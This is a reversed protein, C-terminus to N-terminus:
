NRKGGCDLLWLGRQTIEWNDDKVLRIFRGVWLQGIAKHESTRFTLHHRPEAAISDELLQLDFDDLM